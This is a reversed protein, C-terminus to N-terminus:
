LDNTVIPSGYSGQRSRLLGPVIWYWNQSRMPWQGDPQQTSSCLEDDDDITLLPKKIQPGMQVWKPCSMKVAISLFLETSTPYQTNLVASQKEEESDSNWELLWSAIARKIGKFIGMFLNYDTTLLVSEWRQM